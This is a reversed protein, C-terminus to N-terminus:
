ELRLARRVEELSLGEISLIKDRGTHGHLIEVQRRKLGLQGAILDVLAKNAAGEVAPARVAVKVADGHLGAVGSASAGPVVHVRLLVRGEKESLYTSKM